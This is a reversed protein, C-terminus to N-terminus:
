SLFSKYIKAKEKLYRELPAAINTRSLFSVTRYKSCLIRTKSVKAQVEMGWSHLMSYGVNKMLKSDDLKWIQVRAFVHITQVVCECWCSHTCHADRCKTYRIYSLTNLTHDMAWQRKLCIDGSSRCLECLFLVPHHKVVRPNKQRQFILCM